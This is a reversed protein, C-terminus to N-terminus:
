VLPAFRESLKSAVDFNKAGFPHCAALELKLIWLIEVHRTPNTRGQALGGKTTIALPM